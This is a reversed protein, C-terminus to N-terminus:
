FPLEVVIEGLIDEEEIPGHIRSDYSVEYNDGVVYYQTDSLNYTASGYDIIGDEIVLEDNVYVETGALEVKDGPIGIIRKVHFEESEDANEFNFAIIDGREFTTFHRVTIVHQGDELTPVMSQGDVKAFLLFQSIILVFIIAIGLSKIWEKAENMVYKKNM